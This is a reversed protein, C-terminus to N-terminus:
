GGVAKRAAERMVDHKQDLHTYHKQITQISTGCLEALVAVPVGRGLADSIYSHRFCYATLGPIGLRKGLARFRWTINQRSWPKGRGNRFLPGEPHRGALARLLDAVAETLYIVRKVGKKKKANKWKALTCVGKELDMDAATMKCVESFPRAGTLELAMIYEAFVGKVAARIKQREEATLYRERATVTGPRVRSLPHPPLNLKNVGYNLCALVVAKARAQTNESWPAADREGGKKGGAGVL